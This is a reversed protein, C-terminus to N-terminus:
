DGSRSLEAEVEADSMQRIQAALAAELEAAIDSLVPRNFILELPLSNSFEEGLRTM